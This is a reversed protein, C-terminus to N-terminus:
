AINSFSRRQVESGVQSKKKKKKLKKKEKKNKPDRLPFIPRSLLKLIKEKLLCINQTM